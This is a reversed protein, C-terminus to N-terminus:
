RKATLAEMNITMGGPLTVDGGKMGAPCAGEWAAAVTMAHTGNAQPMAAGTTVSTMKVEYKANFDGTAVGTSAIRGSTGMDCESEFKWGGPAPTVLNKSCTASGMAQGWLTMKAETDADLCMKMTQTM